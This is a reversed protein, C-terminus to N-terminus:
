GRAKLARFSLLYWAFLIVMVSDVVVAVGAQHGLFRSGQSLVLGVFLAKGAGTFTLVLGRVEPHFAGYILMLGGMAVLAGWNRVVLDSVPGEMGEGFTSILAARPAFAAYLMSTTLVGSVVMIWKINAVIWPM